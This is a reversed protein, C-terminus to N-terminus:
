LRLNKRISIKYSMNANSLIQLQMLLGTDSEIESLLHSLLGSAIDALIRGVVFLVVRAFAQNLTLPFNAVLKIFYKCQLSCM